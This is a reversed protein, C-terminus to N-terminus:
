PSITGGAVINDASDFLVLKQGPCPAFQPEDFEVTMTEERVDIIGCPQPDGYSRIKGFCREGVALKEPILINIQNAKITRFSIEERDGLAIINAQADIKGVYLPRGGAFGIGKRQGLTYNSIGKHTGIKNGQMDTIDGSQCTQEGSLAKRYNGEGAFCLEMSEGKEAVSLYQQAAIQRVREKTLEGLPLVFYPLKKRGIGYLFYSQDKTKDKARGLRVENGSKLVRAYHGTALYRIGFNKELFDWVLSFKLLSNCDVCPNPTQGKAYYQRFREIILENFARTVDVFYHPIDLEKCVIAADAGCCHRGGTDCSIPIKMTIGLVEWGAAKLLHATVSSDVGGSMLVAIQKSTEK